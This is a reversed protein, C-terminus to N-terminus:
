EEWVIRDPLVHMKYFMGEEASTISAFLLIAQLLPSLNLYSTFYDIYLTTVGILGFVLMVSYPDTDAKKM